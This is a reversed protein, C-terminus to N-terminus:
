SDETIRGEHFQSASGGANNGGLEAFRAIEIYIVETKLGGIFACPVFLLRSGDPTWGPLTDDAPHVEAPVERSGDVALVYIDWQSTKEGAALDYALYRGDPSFAM